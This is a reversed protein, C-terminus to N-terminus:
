CASANTGPEDLMRRIPLSPPAKEVDFAFTAGDVGVNTFM